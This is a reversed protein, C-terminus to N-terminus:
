SSERPTLSSHGQGKKKGRMRVAPTQEQYSTGPAPPHGRGAGAPPNLALAEDAVAIARDFDGAAAYAAALVDLTNATGGSRSSRQRARGAAGSGASQSDAGDPATALLSALGAMATM